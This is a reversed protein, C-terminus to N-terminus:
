CMMLLHLSLFLTDIMESAIDVNIIDYSNYFQDFLQLKITKFDVLCKLSNKEEM